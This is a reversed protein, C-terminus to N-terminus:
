DDCPLQRMRCPSRNPRMNLFQAAQPGVPLERIHHLSLFSTPVDPEVQSPQSSM